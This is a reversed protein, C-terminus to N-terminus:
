GSSGFGKAQRETESLANVERFTTNVIEHIIGQIIKAGHKITVPESGLNALCVCVEGRYTATDIVGALRHLNNKTSIGSRDWLLMGYGRPTAVAVGTKILSNSQPLITIEGNPIYAYFDIGMDDEYAKTPLIADDYLKKVELIM